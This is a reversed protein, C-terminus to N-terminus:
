RSLVGAECRGICLSQVHSRWNIKANGIHRPIAIQAVKSTYTMDSSSFYSNIDLACYYKYIM